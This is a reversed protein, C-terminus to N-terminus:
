DETEQAVWSLYEPLGHSIEIAIVEPVEYPHVQRVRDQLKPM